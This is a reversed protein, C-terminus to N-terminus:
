HGAPLYAVDDVDRVIPPEKIWLMLVGAIGLFVAAFRIANNPNDGLLNQYIWGFTLSQVLMPIVIMMNIIGMYVGFRTSPIMRVAMIYPVGM